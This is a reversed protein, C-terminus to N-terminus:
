KLKFKADSRQASGKDQYGKKKQQKKEFHTLFPQHQAKRSREHDMFQDFQQRQSANLANLEAQFKVLSEPNTQAQYGLFMLQAFNPEPTDAGQKPNTKSM